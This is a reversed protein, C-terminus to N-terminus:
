RIVMKASCARYLCSLFTFGIMCLLVIYIGSTADIKEVIMFYLFIFVQGILVNLSLFFKGVTRLAHDNLLEKLELDFRKLFLIKWPGEIDEKYKVLKMLGGIFAEITIAVAQQLIAIAAIIAISVVVSDDLQSLEGSKIKWVNGSLLLLRWTGYTVLGPIAVTLTTWFDKFLWDNM